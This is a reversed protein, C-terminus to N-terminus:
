RRRGITRANYAGVPCVACTSFSLRLCQKENEHLKLTDVWRTVARRYRDACAAMTLRALGNHRACEIIQHRHTDLWAAVSAAHDGVSRRRSLSDARRERRPRSEEEEVSLGSDLDLGFGLDM